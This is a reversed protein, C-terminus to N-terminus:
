NLSKKQTLKSFFILVYFLFNLLASRPPQVLRILQVIPFYVFNSFRLKDNPLWSVKWLLLATGVELDSSIKLPLHGSTGNWPIANGYVAIKFKQALEALLLVHALVSSYQKKRM